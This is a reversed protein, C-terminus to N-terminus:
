RLRSWADRYVKYDAGTFPADPTICGIGERGLVPIPADVYGYHEGPPPILLTVRTETKRCPSIAKALAALSEADLTVQLYRPSPAPLIDRLSAKPAPRLPGSRRSGVAPQVHATDGDLAIASPHRMPFLAAPVSVPEAPCEGELSVVATCGRNQVWAVGAPHLHIAGDIGCLCVLSHRLETVIM